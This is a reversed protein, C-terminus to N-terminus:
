LKNIFVFFVKDHLTCSQCSRRGGFLELEDSVRMTSHGAIRLAIRNLTDWKLVRGPLWKKYYLGSAPNQMNSVKHAKTKDIHVSCIGLAPQTLDAQGRDAIMCTGELSSFGVARIDRDVRWSRFFQENKDNQRHCKSKFTPVAIQQQENTFWNIKQSRGSESTARRPSNGLCPGAGQRGVRRRPIQGFM